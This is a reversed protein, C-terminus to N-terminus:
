VTIVGGFHAVPIGLSVNEEWRFNPPRLTSLSISIIFLIICM